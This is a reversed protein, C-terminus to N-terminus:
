DFVPFTQIDIETERNRTPIFIVNGKSLKEALGSLAEQQKEVFEKARPPSLAGVNVYVFAMTVMRKPTLSTKKVENKSLEKWESCKIGLKELTKATKIDNFSIKKVDCCSTTMAAKIINQRRVIEDIIERSHCFKADPGTLIVQGDSCYVFHNTDSDINGYDSNMEKEALFDEITNLKNEEM